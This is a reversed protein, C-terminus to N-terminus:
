MRVTLQNVVETVSDEGPGEFDHVLVNAQWRFNPSFAYAVQGTYVWEGDQAADRDRDLFDVRLAPQWGSAARYIGEAYWGLFAGPDAPLLAGAFIAEYNDGTFLEGLVQLHGASWVGELGWLVYTETGETGLTDVEGRVRNASVDAGVTFGTLPVAELRGVIQKGRDTDAAQGKGTGNYVGVFVQAPLDVEWLDATAMVGLDEASARLNRELFTDIRPRDILNLDASSMVFEQFSLSRKFQGATFTFIRREHIPVTWALYADLLEIRNPVANVQLRGKVGPLVSGTAIVRGRRVGFTSVTADGGAYALDYRPQLFARLDFSEPKFGLQVATQAALSPAHIVFMVLAALFAKRM